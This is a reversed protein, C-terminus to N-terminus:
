VQLNLRFEYVYFSAMYTLFGFWNYIAGFCTALMVRLRNEEYLKKLIYTLSNKDKLFRAEKIGM